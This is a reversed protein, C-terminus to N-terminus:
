RLACLLKNTLPWKNSCTNLFYIRLSHNAEVEVTHSHHILTYISFLCVFNLAFSRSFSVSIRITTAMFYRPTEAVSTTWQDIVIWFYYEVGHVGMTASHGIFLLDKEKTREFMCLCVGCWMPVCVCMCVSVWTINYDM